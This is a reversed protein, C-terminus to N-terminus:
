PSSTFLHALLAGAEAIWQHGQIEAPWSGDVGKKHARHFHAIAFIARDWGQEHLDQEVDRLSVSSGAAESLVARM